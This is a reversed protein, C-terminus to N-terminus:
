VEKCYISYPCSECRKSMVRFYNNMNMGKYVDKYIERLMNYDKDNRTTSGFKNKDVYYIKISTEKNNFAKRFAMSMATLEIDNRLSINNDFLRFDILEIKDDMSIILPWVGIIHHGKALTIDYNLDVAIIDYETSFTKDISLLCDIGDKERKRHWKKIPDEIPLLIDEKQRKGIWLKSWEKQLISMKAFGNNKRQNFFFYIMKKLEIIYKEDISSYLQNPLKCENYLSYMRPCNIYRQIDYIDM